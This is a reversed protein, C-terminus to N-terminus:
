MTSILCTLLSKFRGIEGFPKSWDFPFKWRTHRHIKGGKLKVKKRNPFKRAQKLRFALGARISEVIAPTGGEEREEIDTLYREDERSVQLSNNM